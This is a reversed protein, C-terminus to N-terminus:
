TSARPGAALARRTDIAAAPIHGLLSHFRLGPKAELLPFLISYSLKGLIPRRYSEIFWKGLNYTRSPVLSRELTWRWASRALDRRDIFLFRQVAFFANGALYAQREPTLLGSSELLQRVQELLQVFRSLHTVSGFKTGEIRGDRSSTRYFFDVEPVFAYRPFRVMARIQVDWDQWSPLSEDWGDLEELMRRTWFIGTSQFFLRMGVARDLADEVTAVHLIQGLDGPQDHFLEGYFAAWELEPRERLIELRRALCHPALLDDSDLFIVFPTDTARWGVNRAQNAGRNDPRTALSQFRRNGAAISRAFADSGDESGDNVLVCTWDAFSQAEVSAVTERLWDLRNKFPIVITVQPQSM